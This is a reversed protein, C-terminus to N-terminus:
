SCIYENMYHTIMEQFIFIINTKSYYFPGSNIPSLYWQQSNFYDDERGGYYVNYKPLTKDGNGLHLLSGWQDAPSGAKAMFRDKICWFHTPFLTYNKVAKCWTGKETSPFAVVSSDQLDDASSWIMNSHIELNSWLHLFWGDPTDEWTSNCSM